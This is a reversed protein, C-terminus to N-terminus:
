QWCTQPLAALWNHADARPGATVGRSWNLPWSILLWIWAYDPSSRLWVPLSSLSCACVCMDVGLMCLENEQDSRGESFSSSSTNWTDKGLRFSHRGRNNWWAVYHVKKSITQSSRRLFLGAKHKNIQEDNQVYHRKQSTFCKPSNRSRQCLVSAPLASSIFYFKAENGLCNAVKVLVVEAAASSPWCFECARTWWRRLGM